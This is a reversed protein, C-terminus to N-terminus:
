VRYVPASMEPHAPRRTIEKAAAASRGALSRVENAVLAFGRGQEGAHAAEVAAYLGIWDGSPRLWAVCEVM